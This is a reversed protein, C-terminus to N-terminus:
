NSIVVTESQEILLCFFSFRNLAELVCVFHLRSFSCFFILDTFSEM